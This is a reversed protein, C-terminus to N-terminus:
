HRSRSILQTFIEQLRLFGSLKVNISSRARPFDLRPIPSLSPIGRAHRVVLARRLAAHERLLLPRLTDPARDTM